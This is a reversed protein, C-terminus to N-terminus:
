PYPIIQGNTYRTKGNRTWIIVEGAGVTMTQGHDFFLATSGEIGILTYRKGTIRKIIEKLREPVEDYHPLIVAGPLLGFSQRWAPFAPIREGLIMAGASCGALLGGAALVDLIAQWTLSGKLTKLLYAPWGGSLFVYNAQRIRDALEPDNASEQDIVPLAEVSIGLNSYHQIGLNMWYSVREAGETGAATPLCVVRPPGPLREFLFRDVPAIPPLYEGSGILALM